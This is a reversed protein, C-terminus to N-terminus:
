NNLVTAIIKKLRNHSQTEVVKNKSLKVSKSNKSFLSPTIREMEAKSKEDSKIAELLERLLQKAQKWEIPKWQGPQKPVTENTAGIAWNFCDKTETTIFKGKVLEDFLQGRLYTTLNTQLRPLKENVLDSTNSPIEIYKEWYELEDKLFLYSTDLNLIERRAEPYDGGAERIKKNLYNIKEGKSKLESLKVKYNDIIEREKCFTNFDIEANIAELKVKYYGEFPVKPWYEVEKNNLFSDSIFGENYIELLEETINKQLYISHSEIFSDIDNRSKLVVKNDKDLSVILDAIDKFISKYKEISMEDM